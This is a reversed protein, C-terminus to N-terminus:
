NDAVCRVSYGYYKYNLDEYVNDLDDNMNRYYAYNSGLETATWWLGYYGAYSFDGSSYRRGGPLASFGFDDTGNGDKNWGSRAKLKKGAANKGGAATVLNDWEQRSPLHWGTMCVTKATNWDYLRGYKGCNSNNNDYCWSNGKQPQYNLNEGMWRKGGIVVTKYKKGDRSDTLMGVGDVVTPQNTPTPTPTPTPAPAQYVPQQAVVVAPPAPTPTTQQTPTKQAAGSENLFKKYMDACAAAAKDLLGEIKEARAPDSLAILMGRDIEHMEVTLSLKTGIKRVIGRVIYDAGITEGLSIVCNEEGCKDLVAGGMAMITETTMINYKGRPLNNIAERRITATIEMAEAKNIKATPDIETEVVAVHKVQAFATGAFIAAVIVARGWLGLGRM